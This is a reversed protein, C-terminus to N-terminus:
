RRRRIKNSVYNRDEKNLVFLYNFILGVIGAILGYIILDLWTCDTMSKKLAISITSTVIVAVISKGIEPYFTYWPCKIYIAGFPVTYTLNRVISLISSVGAVAFLGLSSKKLLIYVIVVNLAGTTCVLISNIKIKNVVTFINHIITAQGMVIWPAITIISLQQLLEADQSPVWLKYFVDGFGILLAIPINIIMGIIKMSQKIDHKLEETKNNAYLETLNPMFSAIMTGLLSNIASPITKAVALIGMNEAGIMIDAIILDLGEQLLSGIRTISNWIGSSVLTKVKDFCYYAKKVYLEPILTKKYYANWIQIFLTTGLTALGIFAVKKDGFTFLLWLLAAKLVYGAINILSSIYLKNRVYFSVGLNTCLLGLLFNLTMFTILMKVDNVLHPSINMIKELNFIFVVLVPLFVVCFLVNTFFSSTYYERAEDINNSFVSISIFRSAMSNLAITIISFYSILNNGIHVFGYAEAGVSEVIYPSLLFNIGMNVFVAVISAVMNIILQQNKSIKTM